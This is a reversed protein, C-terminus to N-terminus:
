IRHMQTECEIQSIIPINPKYVDYNMKFIKKSVQEWVGSSIRKNIRWRMKNIPDIKFNIKKLFDYEYLGCGDIWTEGCNWRNREYNVRYQLDFCVYKKNEIKAEEYKKVIYNIFDNEIKFDDDLQILYKFEYKNVENFLKNISKWYLHKGNNIDNYLYKIDPFELPLNLYRKDDSNDNLIFIKFSLDYKNNLLVKINNFLYDYRDKSPIIIVLDLYDKKINVNKDINSININCRRNNRDEYKNM